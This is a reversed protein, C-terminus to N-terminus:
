DGDVESCSNEVSQCNCATDDCQDENECCSGCSGEPSRLEAMEDSMLQGQTNDHAGGDGSLHYEQPIDSEVGPGGSSREDRPDQEAAGDSAEKLGEVTRSDVRQHNVNAEHLHLRPAPGADGCVGLSLRSRTMDMGGLFLYGFEGTWSGQGDDYLTRPRSTGIPLRVTTNRGRHESEPIRVPQDSDQDSLQSSQRPSPVGKSKASKSRMLKSLRKALNRRRLPFCSARPPKGYDTTQAQSPKTTQSPNDDETALVATQLSLSGKPPLEASPGTLSASLPLTPSM